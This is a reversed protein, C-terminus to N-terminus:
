GGIIVELGTQKFEEKLQHMTDQDPEVADGFHQKM